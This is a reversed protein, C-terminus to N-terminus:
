FEDYKSNGLKDVDGDVAVFKKWLNAFARAKGRATKALSYQDSYKEPWYGWTSGFVKGYGFFESPDGTPKLGLVKLAEIEWNFPEANGAQAAQFQEILLKKFHRPKAIQVLHGAACFPTNCIAVPVDVYTDTKIDYISTPTEPFSNQNLQKPESLVRAIMTNILAIVKPKLNPKTSSM